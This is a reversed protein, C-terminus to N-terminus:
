YLRYIRPDLDKYTTQLKIDKLKM